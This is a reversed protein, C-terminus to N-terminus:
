RGLDNVATGLRRELDRLWFGVGVEESATRGPGIFNGRADVPISGDFTLFTNTSGGGWLMFFPGLTSNGPTEMAGLLVSHGVSDVVFIEASPFGDGSLEGAVLLNGDRVDVMMATWTDIAPTIWSYSLPMKAASHASVFTGGRTDRVDLDVDVHAVGETEGHGLLWTAWRAEFDVTHTPSAFGTAAGSSRGKVPALDILMTTRASYALLDSPGRGDGEFGGGFVNDDAFRRVYFHYSPVLSGNGSSVTPPPIPNGLAQAGAGLADGVEGALWGVGAVAAAIPNADGPQCDQSVCDSSSLGTPDIRSIPDGGAFMYPHALGASGRHRIPDRALFRGTRPEYMRAGLQDLKFARLGDGSNWLYKWSDVADPSGTRSRVEGYPYYMVDQTVSGSADTVTRAGSPEGFIFLQSASASAGRKVFVAGPLRVRREFVGAPVGGTSLMSLEVSGGYRVDQRRDSDDTLEAVGGFPDYAYRVQGNVANGTVGRIEATRGFGDYSVQRSTLLNLPARVNRGLADYLYNCGSYPGAGPPDIRCPRDRDIPDTQTVFSRAPNTADTLSILNGLGDYVYSDSSLQAGRALDTIVSGALRRAGDYSYSVSEHRPTGFSVADERTVIRLADDMTVTTTTAGGNVALTYRTLENRDADRFQYTLGTGNHYAASRLRGLGDYVVNNVLDIGDPTTEDRWVVRNPRQASDYLYYASNASSGTDPTSYAQRYLSGDIRYTSAAQVVRGSSDIFSIQSIRGLGDYRFLQTQAATSAETLRGLAYSTAHGPSTDYRYSTASEPDEIGDSLTSSRVLRGFGDYRHVIARSTTGELWAVQTLQGAHDYSMTRTAVGPETETVVQGLSDVTSTWPLGQGILLPNPSRTTAILHGLRDYGADMREFVSINFGSSRQRGHGRVRGLADTWTLDYTNANLSGPDSEDPGKSAITRQYGSFAEISCSAYRAEAPSSDLASQPGRGQVRCLLAGDARYTYTTGYRPGGDGLAYPAATFALRGLTDFSRDLGVVTKGAYDAGLPHESHRLRGHSDYADVTWSEDRSVSSPNAAVGAPAVANHWSRTLVRRGGPDLVDARGNASAQTDGLYRLLAAMSEAGSSPDVVTTRLSRGYGDYTQRRARGNAEVIATPQLTFPDFSAQVIQPPLTGSSSTVTSPVIEFADYGGAQTVLTQGGGADAVTKDIVGGGPLYSVVESVFEELKAGANWREVIRQSPLGADVQGEALGDFTARLGALVKASTTCDMMSGTVPGEFLRISQVASRVQWISTTAPTAYRREECLDDDSRHLDNRHLILHPRGYEDTDVVTTASEVLQDSPPGASGRRAITTAPSAAALSHCAVDWSGNNSVVAPPSYPTVATTCDGGTYGSLTVHSAAWATVSQATWRADATAVITLLQSADVSFDGALQDSERARGVIAFRDFDSPLQEPTWQDAIWAAGHVVLSGGSSGAPTGRLTVVREYGRFVWRDLAFDFLQRAGGYAHYSPELNGDRSSTTQDRAVVLEPFPVQHLSRTDQKASTYSLQHDEGYGNSLSVIRGADHAGVGGTLGAIQFVRLTAGPRPTLNADTNGFDTGAIVFDMRGDGNIDFLGAQTISNGGDCYESGSSLAFGPPAEIPIAPGFGLGTGVRVTTGSVYDPIGDGTVDVLGARTEIAYRWHPQFARLPQCVELRHSTNIMAAGPLVVGIPYAYGTGGVMHGSALQARGGVIRDLIGDGNVDLYGRLMTIQTARGPLKVINGSADTHLFPSGDPFPQSWEEVAGGDGTYLPIPAAFPVEAPTPRTGGRHLFVRQFNSTGLTGPAFDVTTTYECYAHDFDYPSPGPGDPGCGTAGFSRVDSPNSNAILDPFGDGNVDALKWETRTFQEQVVPPDQSACLVWPPTGPHAEYCIRHKVTQSTFAQRLPLYDGFALDSTAVQAMIRSVDLDIARWSATAPDAGPENLYVRWTHRAALADIFDPRGDGNFDLIQSYTREYVVASFGYQQVPNSTDIRALERPASANWMGQDVFAGGGLNKGVHLNGGSDKRVFDPLGDGTVDVLLDHQINTTAGFLSGVDPTQYFTPLAMAATEVFRLQPAPAGPLANHVISDVETAQGYRYRAVPIPATEEPTGQRGYRNVAILRPLGTDPDAEYALTYRSLAQPTGCGAGQALLSVSRLVKSRVRLAGNDLHTALVRPTSQTPDTQYDLAITHKACAGSPHFDYAISDLVLEPVVTPEDDAVGKTLTVREIHYALVVKAQPRTGASIQTLFWPSLPDLGAIREFRYIHGTGDSVQWSSSQEPHIANSATIEFTRHDVVARFHGVADSAVLPVVGGLALTFRPTVGPAAFQNAPGGGGPVWGSVYDPRRRSTTSSVAIQPLPVVWGLGGDSVGGGAQVLSFPIPLGDREAPFSFPVIDGGGGPSATARGGGGYHIGVPGVQARAPSAAMAVVTGLSAAFGLFRKTYM